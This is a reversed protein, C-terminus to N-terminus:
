LPLSASSEGLNVRHCLVPPRDRELLLWEHFGLVRASRISIWLGRRICPCSPPIHLPAPPPTQGNHINLPTISAPSPLSAHSTLGPRRQHSLQPSLPLAPNEFKSPTLVRDRRTYIPTKLTNSLSSPSSPAAGQLVMCLLRLAHLAYGQIHPIILPSGVIERRALLVLYWLSHKAILGSSAILDAAGLNTTQDKWWQTTGVMYNIVYYTDAGRGAGRSYADM